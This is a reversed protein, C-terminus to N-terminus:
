YPIGNAKLTDFAYGKRYASSFMLKGSTLDWHDVSVIDALDPEGYRVILINGKISTNLVHRQDDRFEKGYRSVITQQPSPHSATYTSIGVVIVLVILLLPVFKSKM